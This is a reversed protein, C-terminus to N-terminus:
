VQIPDPGALDAQCTIGLKPRFLATEAPILQWHPVYKEFDKTKM